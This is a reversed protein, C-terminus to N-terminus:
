LTFNDTTHLLQQGFMDGEDGTMRHGAALLPRAPPARSDQEYIM